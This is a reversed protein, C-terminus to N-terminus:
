FGCLYTKLLRPYTQLGESCLTRYFVGGYKVISLNAIRLKGGPKCIPVLIPRDRLMPFRDFDVIHSLSFCNWLWYCTILQLLEMALM